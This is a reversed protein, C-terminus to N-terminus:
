EGFFSSNGTHCLDDDLPEVSLLAETENGLVAAAGVNEDVVRRDLRVAVTRQVLRLADVLAPDAALYGLRGGALAFEVRGRQTLGLNGGEGVVRCRLQAADVRVGDNAKDGVDAHTEGLVGARGLVYFDIGSYGIEAGRAYTQGDQMFAGGLQGIAQATARAADESTM